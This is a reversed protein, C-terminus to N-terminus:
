NEAASTPVGMGPKFGVADSFVSRYQRSFKIKLCVVRLVKENETLYRWALRFRISGLMSEGAGNTTYSSRQLYGDGCQCDLVFFITLYTQFLDKYLFEYLSFYATMWSM